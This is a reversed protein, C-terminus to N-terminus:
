VSGLPKLLAEFELLSLREARVDAPLGVEHIAAAVQARPWRASLANLLTKRRQAFAAFVLTRLAEVEGASAAGQRPELGVFASEVKPPPDFSGPRVRGLIRAAARAQTLVSLAGYAKSGPEAVLRQAVELQLLFAARDIREPHRLLRDILATGVNYPLNGAVRVTGRLREWPLELADGIVFSAGEDGAFRRAARFAWSPDLEWALVRAGAQRLAATLVGGGPGIEIVLANGPALFEVLPRCLAADRLHHQGLAKKLAPRDV